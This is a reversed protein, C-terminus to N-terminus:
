VPTPTERLDAITTNELFVFMADAAPKWRHHIRCPHDDSCRGNGLICRRFQDTNQFMNVIDIVRVSAPDCAFRYGGHKGREATLIGSNGLMNMLKSLYNAPIKTAAQIERALIPEEDRHEIMYALAQLAYLPTQSLM